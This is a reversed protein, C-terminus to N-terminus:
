QGSQQSISVCTSVRAFKFSHFKKPPPLFKSGSTDNIEVVEHPFQILNCVKQGNRNITYNYYRSNMVLGAWERWGPPIYSIWIFLYIFSHIFSHILSRTISHIFGRTLNFCILSLAATLHCYFRESRVSFSHAAQFRPWRSRKWTFRWEFAGPWNSPRPWDAIGGVNGDGDVLFHHELQDDDFSWIIERDTGM